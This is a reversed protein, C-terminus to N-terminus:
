RSEPATKLTDIIMNYFTKGYKKFKKVYTVYKKSFIVMLPFTLFAFTFGTRKHQIRSPEPVIGEHVTKKSTETKAAAVKQM